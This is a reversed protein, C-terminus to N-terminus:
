GSRDGPSPMKLDSEDEDLQSKQVPLSVVPTSEVEDFDRMRAQYDATAAEEWQVENIEATAEDTPSASDVEADQPEQNVEATPEDSSPALDLETDQQTGEPGTM